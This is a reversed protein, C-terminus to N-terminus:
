SAKKKKGNLKDEYAKILKDKLNYNEEKLRNIENQQELERKSYNPMEESVECTGISKYTYEKEEILDKPNIGLISAAKFLIATSVHDKKYIKFLNVESTEMKEAFIKHQFESKDVLGKLKNGFHYM